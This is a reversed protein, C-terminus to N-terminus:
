GSVQILLSLYGLVLSPFLPFSAQGGLTPRPVSVFNSPTTMRWFFFSRPPFSPFFFLSLSSLFLPPSEVSSHSALFHWPLPCIPLGRFLQEFIRASKRPPHTFPFFLVASSAPRWILQGFSGLSPFPSPRCAVPLDSFPGVSHPILFSFSPLLVSSLLFLTIQYPCFDAQSPRGFCSWATFLPSTM